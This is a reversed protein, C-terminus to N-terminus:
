PAQVTVRTSDALAYNGRQIIPLGDRLEAGRVEVVSDSQIGVEVPISRSLSDPTMMVIAYRNTEDDHLVASREVLLVHARTQTVIRTSGQLNAKLLNRRADTLGVFRLRVKVSQSEADAQPLIGDLEAKFVEGTGQPFVVRALLGRRVAGMMSAPVDAMFVLSSVDILTMIESQEAVLEGASVSRTAVVGDFGARIYVKPQLSDALALAREAERKQPETTAARMLMKAGDITSQAERTRIVTLVDGARVSTGELVKLEMVRGAVPSVIKEKRLAETSGVAFVTEEITGDRLYSLQVSVKARSNADDTEEAPHRCGGLVTLAFLSWLCGCRYVM